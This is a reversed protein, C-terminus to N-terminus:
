SSVSEEIKKIELIGKDKLTVEVFDNIKFGSEKIWLGELLIRSANLNNIGSTVKLKRVEKMIVKRKKKILEGPNLFGEAYLENKLINSLCRPEEKKFINKYRKKCYQYSVGLQNSLSTINGTEKLYNVAYSDRLITSNVTKNIYKSLKEITKYISKITTGNKPEELSRVVPGFKAMLYNYDMYKRIVDCTTRSFPLRRNLLKFNTKLNLYSSDLNIDDVNLSVIEKPLLGCDIILLFILKTRRGRLTKVNILRNISYIEQKNLFKLEEDPKFEIESKNYNKIINTMPNRLLIKDRQLFNFFTRLMMLNSSPALRDEQGKRTELYDIIVKKSVKSFNIYYSFDYVKGYKYPEKLFKLFSNVKIKKAMITSKANKQIHADNLFLLLATEATIGKKLIKSVQEKTIIEYASEDIKENEKERKLDLTVKGELYESMLNKVNIM